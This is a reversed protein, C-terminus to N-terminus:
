SAPSACTYSAAGVPGDGVTARWMLDKAMAASDANWRDAIGVGTWWALWSIGCDLRSAGDPRAAIGLGLGTGIAGAPHAAVGGAVHDLWSTINGDRDGIFLLVHRAGYSIDGADISVPAGVGDVYVYISYPTTVTYPYIIIGDGTTRTSFLFRNTGQPERPARFLCAFIWDEGLAPDISTASVYRDTAGDFTGDILRAGHRTVHPGEVTGPAGAATLVPGVTPTIGDGGVWLLTPTGYRAPIDVRPDLVHTFCSRYITRQGHAGLPRARRRGISHSQTGIPRRAPRPM